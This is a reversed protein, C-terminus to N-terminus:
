ISAPDFSMLRRELFLATTMMRGFYNLFTVGQQPKPVGSPPCQNLWEGAETVPIDNAPQSAGIYTTQPRLTTRMNGDTTRKVYGEAELCDLLPKLEPKQISIREAVVLNRPTGALRQELDRLLQTKGSSNPGIVDILGASDIAGLDPLLVEQLPKFDNLQKM